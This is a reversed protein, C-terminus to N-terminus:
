DVTESQDAEINDYNFRLARVLEELYQRTNQDEISTPEPLREQVRKSDVM